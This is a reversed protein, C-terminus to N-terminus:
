VNVTDFSSFYVWHWTFCFSKPKYTISNLIQRNLIVQPNINVGFLVSHSLSYFVFYFYMGLQILKSLLSIYFIIVQIGITKLGKYCSKKVKLDIQWLQYNDYVKKLHRCIHVPKSEGLLKTVIELMMTYIRKLNLQSERIVNQVKFTGCNKQIFQFRM